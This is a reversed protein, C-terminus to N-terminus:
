ESQAPRRLDSVRFPSDSGRGSKRRREGLAELAPSQGWAERYLSRLDALSGQVSVRGRLEAHRMPRLGREVHFAHALLPGDDTEKKELTTQVEEVENREWAARSRQFF